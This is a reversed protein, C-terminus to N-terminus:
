AVTLYRSRLQTTRKLHQLKLKKASAWLLNTCSNKERWRRPPVCRKREFMSSTKLTNPGTTAKTFKRRLRRAAHSPLLGRLTHYQSRLGHTLFALFSYCKSNLALVRVQKDADYREAGVHGTSLMRSHLQLRMLEFAPVAAHRAFPGVQLPDFGGPLTSDHPEVHPLGTGIQQLRSASLGAIVDRSPTAIGYCNSSFVNHSCLIVKLHLPDHYTPLGAPRVYIYRAAPQSITFTQSANGHM